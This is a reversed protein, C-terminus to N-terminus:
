KWKWTKLQNMRKRGSNMNEIIEKSMEGKKLVEVTTTLAVKLDKSWKHQLKWFRNKYAWQARTFFNDQGNNIM